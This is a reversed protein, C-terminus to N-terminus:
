AMAFIIVVEIKKGAGGDSSQTVLLFPTVESALVVGHGAELNAADAGMRQFVAQGAADAENVLHAADESVSSGDKATYARLGLSVKGTAGLQDSKVFADIIKAGNPLSPLEIEDNATLNGLTTYTDALSHLDGKMEAPSVKRDKDQESATKNLGKLLAM